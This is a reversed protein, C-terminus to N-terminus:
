RGLLPNLIFVEFCFINCANLCICFTNLENNAKLGISEKGRMVLVSVPALYSVCHIVSYTLHRQSGQTWFLFHTVGQLFLMSQSLSPKIGHKLFCGDEKLTRLLFM